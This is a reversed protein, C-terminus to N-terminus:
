APIFILSIIVPPTALCGLAMALAAQNRIMRATIFGGLGLM